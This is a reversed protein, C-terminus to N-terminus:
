KGYGKFGKVPSVTYTSDLERSRLDGKNLDKYTAGVAKYAQILKDQEVQTYPHATDYRGSWSEADFDLPTKGDSMATAMMIRNLEYIRDLARSDRFKNLGVTSQQQRKTVKTEKDENLFEHARM